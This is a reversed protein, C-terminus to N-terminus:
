LLVKTQEADKAMWTPADAKIQEFVVPHQKEFAPMHPGRRYASNEWILWAAGPAIWRRHDLGIHRFDARTVFGRRELIACIKLARIKWETLQVPAKDGAAVDPVYAPLTCRKAPGMEHWDREAYWSLDDKVTPLAPRFVHRTHRYKERNCWILTLGVHACIVDLHNREEGIPLLLARCDPGESMASSGSYDLAQEILKLTFKLKAQVGIQFGDAKRVLLIDWGSTEAYATWEPPLDATFTRCLETETSFIASM